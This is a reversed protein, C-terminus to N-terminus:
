RLARKLALHHSAIFHRGPEATEQPLLIQEFEERTIVAGISESLNNDIVISQVFHAFLSTPIPLVFVNCQYEGNWQVSPLMITDIKKLMPMIFSLEKTRIEEFLERWAACWDTEGVHPSGGFLSYRGHCALTPHKTDKRQLLFAKRHEDCLVISVSRMHDDPAQGFEMWSRIAMQVEHSLNDVRVCNELATGKVGYFLRAHEYRLELDTDEEPNLDLLRFVWTNPPEKEYIKKQGLELIRRM